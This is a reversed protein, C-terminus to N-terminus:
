FSRNGEIIGRGELVMWLPPGGKDAVVMERTGRIEWFGGGSFGFGLGGAHVTLDYIKLMKGAIVVLKDGSLAVM